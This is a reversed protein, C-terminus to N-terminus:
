SVESTGVEWGLMQCQGHSEASHTPVQLNSSVTLLMADSWCLFVLLSSEALRPGKSYYFLPIFPILRPRWTQPPSQAEDESIESNRHDHSSGHSLYPIVLPLKLFSM